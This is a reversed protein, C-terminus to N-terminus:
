SPQASELVNMTTGRWEFQNGSWANVWLAPLMFDRLLACVLFYRSVPWDATLALACEAGYWLAAFLLIAPLAAGETQSAVFLLAAMPATAGSLIEPFFFLPFTARRLRAWRSQRRWVERASRAGLPQSAPPSVLRVRLGAERVIKTAAADEAIETGLSRIGGAQELDSRRWFLTKGQAFGIGLGDALYQWRAQYCNLFACELEAWFGAPLCGTPPACVLGTDSHWAAFLRQIYDHRMLINSDTIAIWDNTAARWGKVVNNLKPNPSQHDDGILLRADIRPYEAILRRVLPAAPEDARAACFILEYSPYDLLFASQLTAESYNDLGCVPIVLSVPPGDAAAALPVRPPRCRIMAVAMSALHLTTALVVFSAAAWIAVTM